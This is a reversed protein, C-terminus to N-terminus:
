DLEGRRRKDALIRWKSAVEDGDCYAGKLWRGREGPEVGQESSGEVFEFATRAHLVRRNDFIVCDGPQLQVNYRYREDDCLDAFLQLGRRLKSLREADISTTTARDRVLQTLPLPGQFPPSYNVALITQGDTDLEITPREFRTHHADSRYEFLVPESALVDFAERDTERIRQAVAYSDVFYSAGGKVGTNQLSHLFQYRPPTEFHVLDMHLGLDLNTYAINKSGVEAKVDFLNGYWTNRISSIREVLTRLDTYQGAKNDTPVHKVFAIGDRLLDDLMDLTTREKTLVGDFDQPTLRENLLQRTWPTYLPLALPDQERLIGVLLGLPTVSLTGSEDTEKFGKLRSTWEMILHDQGNIEHVGYGKIQGDAPVDTTRFLKQKSSPHVHSPHVSADRLFLNPVTLVHSAGQQPSELQIVVSDPHDLSRALSKVQLSRSLPRPVFPQVPLGDRSSSDAQQFSTSPEPAEPPNFPAASPVSTATARRVRASAYFQRAQGGKSGVTFAAARRSCPQLM